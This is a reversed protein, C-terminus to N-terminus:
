SGLGRRNHQDFMLDVKTPPQQNDDSRRPRRVVMLPDFEQWLPLASLLAGLLAGSRLLWGVFGVTLAVSTVAVAKILFGPTGSRSNRLDSLERDLLGFLSNRHVSKFHYDVLGASDKSAKVGCGPSESAHGSGDARGNNGADPQAASDGACAAAAVSTSAAEIKSSPDVGPIAAPVVASGPAPTVNPAIRADVAPVAAPAGVIPAPIALSARRYPTSDAIAGSNVAGSSNRLGNLVDLNNEDPPPKVTLGPISASSGDVFSGRLPPISLRGNSQFAFAYNASSTLSGLGVDIAYPSGFPSATPAAGASTVAAAGSYAAAATDGLFANAVGAQVGSITYHGAISGTADTGYSKSADTSTVTIVPQYAFLYRNGSASVSGPALGAYTANWIATNASNLGGFSDGGPANSYVLWRGSTATVASSGAGNIFAGAAALVPSAGNVTAGSAITLDGSTVLSVGGSATVGTTGLVTGVILASSDNVAVSAASAAVTGIQNGAANLIFNGSAGSLLLRAATIIGGSQNVTGSGSLELVGSSSSISAGLDAGGATNVILTGSGNSTIASTGFLEVGLSSSSSGSLTIAGSTALSAGSFLALGINSGSTGLFTLTGSGANSVSDSNQFRLGTASTSTGAFSVSGSSVTLSNGGLFELGTSSNSTGSLTMDGSITLSAGAGLGLGRSSNSNGSLTLTGAGSNSLTDSGSFRLATSSTSTGNLAVNGNSVILSNGGQFTLGISSSSIGALTMNGATTLTASTNIALGSGSGSTGAFTVTGSGANTVANAGDFLVGFGSTSSGNMALNGSSVTLGNAGQIYIGRFSASTGNFTMNGSTTLSANGVPKFGSQTSSTGSIILTGAGANAVANSGLFNVGKGSTSTGTMTVNGSSVTFTTGGDLTAADGSNSTAVVSLNGSTTLAANAFVEFARYSSSSGSFSLTGAGSNTATDAGQFLIGSSSTSAGNVSLNGSSATLANGGVFYSGIFSNSTGSLAMTGTTTLSANTDLQLGAGSGSGGSVSFTGAGSNTLTNAGSLFIFGSGSTSTGALTLNGTSSTISNAGNLNFGYNTGSTGALALNGASTLGVNTNLGIGWLSSSTGNIAFTGGSNSLAIPGANFWVGDNSTSTGNITLNGATNSISNTGLFYIGVSSTSTGSLTMAGSTTLSANSSFQMGNNSNSTGSLLLSGVGGNILSNAGSMILGVSSGSNGTVSLNGGGVTLANSSQFDVGASSSSSGSLTTNGSTTLTASSIFQMGDSSNSTGSLALTGPGASTLTNTGTFLVGYGSTSSGNLTATGGGVNIVANSLTIGNTGDTTSATASLNGGGTDITAGTVNVSRGSSLTLGGGNSIINANVNIDRASSLTLSNVGAWTVANAVTIDGNEGGSSGTNVTVNATALANQLTTVSLVSPSNTPSFPSSPSINSDAGNSITVDYPDLLLTGTKGSASRVDVVGGYSLVGHSSVEVAGGSATGAGTASITGRFDTAVDSWIAVKGGAGVAGNANIVAGQDVATTQANAVSNQALKVAPDLGGRLDGGVLINGGNGGSANLKARSTLRVNGGTVVITGGAHRLGGTATLKGSIVVNGGRGGDLVINGSRGSVARASLSGSINVADRVAQQATAAKIEITGGAAKIRGAVDILARGDAAVAGTPVAIQLFGDGNPNLTAQEGSGLGVKGLPVNITGANSVSGGILGVFGGPASSIVGANSVVASAGKGSFNLNGANFDANAIDLTSAVFGGGVQVSGSPTIAIGNPNILFVQGNGSVQGAITSSTSGTVRNLIASSANPQIFNVSGGSGVSFSNWDIIARSSNQVITLGSGFPTGIRAQGSVVSGGQPLVAQALAIDPCAEMFWAIAVSALSMGLTTQRRVGTFRNHLPDGM